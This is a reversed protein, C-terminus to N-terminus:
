KRLANPSFKQKSEISYMGLAILALAVASLVNSGLKIIRYTFM